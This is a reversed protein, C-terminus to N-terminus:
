WGGRCQADDDFCVVEGVRITDMLFVSNTYLMVSM